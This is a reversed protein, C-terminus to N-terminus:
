AAVDARPTAVQYGDRAKHLVYDGERARDSYIVEGVRQGDESLVNWLLACADEEDLDLVQRHAAVHRWSGEDELVVFRRDARREDRPCRYLDYISDALYDPPSLEDALGEAAIDKFQLQM